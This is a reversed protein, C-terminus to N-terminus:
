GFLRSFFGGQPRPEEYLLASVQGEVSVLGSELTLNKLHLGQGRILMRGRCTRLVAGDEEFSVVETVGTVTLRKREEMTVRHPLEMAEERAQAM